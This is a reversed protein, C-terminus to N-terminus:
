AMATTWVKVQNRGAAKAAYLAKDARDIADEVTREPDLLTLGCSVTVQFAPRGGFAFSHSAFDARLRELLTEATAVDAGPACVLFEEGGYRFIRDHSRLGAITLRTFAKLVEDGAMHGNQDNVSKFHDIDLMAVVCPHVKRKVLELQERLKPLMSTRNETGTLPDLNRISEELEHKMTLAELRMRKLAALFREYEGLPPATGDSTSRLLGSALQHMREHEIAIEAFGPHDQLSAAGTGYYWQGFRCHRHADAAVDREDFPLRCILTQNIAEAWQDHNFLAQDLQVLAARMLNANM